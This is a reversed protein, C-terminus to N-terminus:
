KDIDSLPVTGNIGVQPVACIEKEVFSAVRDKVCFDISRKRTRTLM